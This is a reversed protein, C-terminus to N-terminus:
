QSDFEIMAQQCRGEGAVGDTHLHVIVSIRQDAEDVIWFYWEGARPGGTGLIHSWFGPPWNPYGTHPGSEIKAVIPGDAQWSFAVFQGNVPQGGKKTFGNVYTIGANPDCRVVFGVNFEYAANQAILPLFLLEPVTQGLARGGRDIQGVLALTWCLCCILSWRVRASM